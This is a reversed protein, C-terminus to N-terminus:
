FKPLASLAQAAESEVVRMQTASANDTIEYDTANSRLVGAATSSEDGAVRQRETVGARFEDCKVAILSSHRVKGFAHMPLQTSGLTNGVRHCDIAVADFEAGASRLQQPRVSVKTYSM